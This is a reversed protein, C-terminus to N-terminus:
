RQKLYGDYGGSDISKAVDELNRKEIICGQMTFVKEQSGELSQLLEKYRKEDLKRIGVLAYSKAEIDGSTYIEEFSALAVAAPQSQIIRFDIEGQSIRGIFGVGGFAFVGANSISKVAAALPDQAYGASCVLALLLAASRKM